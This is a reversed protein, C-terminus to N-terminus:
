FSGSKARKARLGFSARQDWSMVIGTPNATVENMPMMTEEDDVTIKPWGIQFGRSRRWDNRLSPV